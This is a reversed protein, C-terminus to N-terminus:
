VVSPSLVLDFTRAILFWALLWSTVKIIGRVSDVVKVGPLQSFRSWPIECSNSGLSPDVTVVGIRVVEVVVKGAQFGRRTMSSVKSGM